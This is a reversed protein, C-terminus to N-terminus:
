GPLSDGPFSRCSHVEYVFVDAQVGPDDDMIRKTDEVTANFIGVGAVDGEDRIPCVISLLSEARLSFNRRGHEWVIARSEPEHYKPGKRLIVISYERAKTMMQRM